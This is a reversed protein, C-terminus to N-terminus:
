GLLQRVLGGLHRRVQAKTLGVRQAVAEVSPLKSNDLGYYLRVLQREQGPLVAFAGPKGAGVAEREPRGRRRAAASLQV